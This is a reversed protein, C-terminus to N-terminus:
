VAKPGKFYGDKKQETNELAEENSLCESIKDQRMHNKLKVPQFSPKIGNTDVKDLESFLDLIEKLQPKFKKIEEDNLELRALSAVHKILEKDVKM